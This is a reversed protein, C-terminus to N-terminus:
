SLDIDCYLDNISARFYVTNNILSHQEGVKLDRHVIGLNHCYGVADIIQHFKVRADPESLKGNKAIYDPAFNAFFVQSYM